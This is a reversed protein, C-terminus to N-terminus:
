KREEEQARAAKRTRWMYRVIRFVRREFRAVEEEHVYGFILLGCAAIELITRVVENVIM